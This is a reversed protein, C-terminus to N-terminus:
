VYHDDVELTGEIKMALSCTNEKAHRVVFLRRTEVCGHAPFEQLLDRPHRHLSQRRESFCPDCVGPCPQILHRRVRHRDDAGSAMNFAEEHNSAKAPVAKLM